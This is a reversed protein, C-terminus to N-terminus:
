GRCFQGYNAIGNLRRDEIDSRFMPQDLRKKEFGVLKAVDMRKSILDIIMNDIKLLDDSLLELNPM